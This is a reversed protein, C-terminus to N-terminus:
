KLESCVLEHKLTQMAVNLRLADLGERECFVNHSSQRALNM